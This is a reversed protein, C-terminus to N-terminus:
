KKKTEIENIRTTQSAEVPKDQSKLALTIAKWITGNYREVQGNGQPNNPTTRSTAINKQSLYEKLTSSMFSAGRDSHNLSPMGFISFLQGLCKIVTEASMDACAYAFPFRSYEDVITLLYKNKGTTPLPGKFDMSLREFAQTAKILHTQSKEAFNPKIQSCTGCGTTMKRVDEISYPLNRSRIFHM